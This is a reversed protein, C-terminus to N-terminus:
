KELSKLERELRAHLRQRFGAPLTFVREDALLVVINRTADYEAACHRCQELHREIEARLAPDLDGELYNSVERRVHDCNINVM